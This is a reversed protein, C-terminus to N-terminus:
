LSVESKGPINIVDKFDEVAVVEYNEDIGSFTLCSCDILTRARHHNQHDM